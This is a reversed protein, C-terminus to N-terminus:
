CARGEEPNPEDNRERQVAAEATSVPTDAPELTEPENSSSSM